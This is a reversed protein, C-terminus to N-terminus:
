STAQDDLEAKLKEVDARRYLKGGGKGVGVIVATIKREPEPLAPNSWRWLTSRDVGLM